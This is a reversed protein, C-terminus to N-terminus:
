LNDQLDDNGDHSLGMGDGFEYVVMMTMMVIVTMMVMVMVSTMIVSTITVIMMVITMVMTMLADDRDAYDNGGDDYDDDDACNIITVMMAM